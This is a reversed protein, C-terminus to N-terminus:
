ASIPPQGQNGRALVDAYRPIGAAGGVNEICFAACAHGTRAAGFADAGHLLGAVFGADFCDGAGTTDVVRAPVAMVRERSGGRAVLSGEAGMKLVVTGCGHSLLCDALADPTDDPYIARMDDVSPLAYDCHPLMAELVERKPGLGWCEDLLTVVGRRRAEALLQAGPAGDLAPLVFCDQYVLFDADWLSEAEVDAPGFTMNVGPTHIFSRDGDPHIGVFTFPTTETPSVCIGRTDVGCAALEHRLFAGNADDGVKSFVGVDIGMKALASGTNAAGGGAAFRVSATTVQPRVRPEPYRELPGSLADVVLVGICHIRAM